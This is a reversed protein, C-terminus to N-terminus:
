PSWDHLFLPNPGHVTRSRAKGYLIEVIKQVSEGGITIVSHPQLGLLGCILKVMGKREGGKSLSDFVAVFKVIAMLSERERCGDHFWLLAQSLAEFANPLRPEHDPATLTRAIDGVVSFYARREILFDTVSVDNVPPAIKRQTWNSGINITGDSSFKMSTRPRPQQDFLLYMGDLARVSDEWCLALAATAVRAARLASEEATAASQREISVSCIQHCNGVMDIISETLFYGPKKLRSLDYDNEWVDLVQQTLPKSLCGEAEMRQLWLQRDLFTVPGIAIPEELRSSIISCGFYIENKTSPLGHGKIWKRVHNEVLRANTADPEDYDLSALIEALASAMAQRWDLIRWHPKLHPRKQLLDDALQNILRDVTPSVHLARGDPLGIMRPLRGEEVHGRWIESPTWHATSRMEQVLNQYLEGSTSMNNLLM